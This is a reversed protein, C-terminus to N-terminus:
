IICLSSNWTLIGGVGLFGCIESHISFLDPLDSVQYVVATNRLLFLAKTLPSPHRTSRSKLGYIKTNCSVRIICVCEHVIQIALSVGLALTFDHHCLSCPQPAGPGEPSFSEAGQQAVAMRTERVWESALAQRGTTENGLWSPQPAPM